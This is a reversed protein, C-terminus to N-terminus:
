KISDLRNYRVNRRNPKIQSRKERRGMNLEELKRIIRKINNKHRGIGGTNDRVIEM